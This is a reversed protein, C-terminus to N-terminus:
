ERSELDKVKAAFQICRDAIIGMDKLDNTLVNTITCDRPIWCCANIVHDVTEENGKCLRCVNDTYWYKRVAKVDLIGARVHFMKRAKQPHFDQLYPQPQLQDYRSMQSGHKQSSMEENLQNLAFTVVKKKVLRKWQEKSYQRIETDPTTINLTSRLVNVENGWNKEDDYRLQECHVRRVPDSEELNM